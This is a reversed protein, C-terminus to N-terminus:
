NLPLGTALARFSDTRLGTKKHSHVASRALMARHPPPPSCIAFVILAAVGKNGKFEPTTSLFERPKEILIFQSKQKLKAWLDRQKDWCIRDSETRYSGAFNSLERLPIRMGHRRASIM